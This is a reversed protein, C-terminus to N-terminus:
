GKPGFSREVGAISALGGIGAVRGATDAHVGGLAYVPLRASRALRQFKLAGIPTAASPSDSPFVTSLLAADFGMRAAHRLAAPSHASVTQLAFAGSWRRAQSRQAEPWHVGQARVAEALRPDAAILLILGRRRAISALKRAIQRRNPAGFHRYIVGTGRPLHAATRLLDTTRAPDTLFLLGPLPRPLSHEARRAAAILKRRDTSRHNM